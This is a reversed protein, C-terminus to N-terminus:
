GSTSPWTSRIAAVHTEGALLRDDGARTRADARRQAPRQDGRARVHHAGVDVAVGGLAGGGRQARLGPGCAEVDGVGGRHLGRDVLDDVARAPEVQHEVVRADGPAASVSSSVSSWHFAIM